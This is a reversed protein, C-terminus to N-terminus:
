IKNVFILCIKSVQDPTHESPFFIHFTVLQRILISTCDRLYGISEITSQFDSGPAHIAISIPGQWREVLPVVNDLFTFDALTTVTITEHCKFQKEAKIFNYLVWYNGKQIIQSTMPKDYCKTITRVKELITAASSKFNKNRLTEEYNRIFLKEEFEEIEYNRSDTTLYCLVPIFIVLIVAVFVIKRPFFM